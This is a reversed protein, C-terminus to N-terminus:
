RGDALAGAPYFLPVSEWVKYIDDSGLSAHKFLHAAQDDIEFPDLDDLADLDFRDAVRVLTNCTFVKSYQQAAKRRLRRTDRAADVLHRRAGRRDRADVRSGCRGLLERRARRRRPSSHDHSRSFRTAGPPPLSGDDPGDFRDLQRQIAALLAHTRAAVAAHEGAGIIGGGTSTYLSTTNDTLAVLSAYDNGRPMDIVVGLM